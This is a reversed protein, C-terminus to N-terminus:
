EDCEDEEPADVAFDSLQNFQALVSALVSVLHQDRTIIRLAQNGDDDLTFVTYYDFYTKTDFEEKLVEITSKIHELVALDKKLKDMDVKIPTGAPVPSFNDEIVKKIDKDDIMILDEM